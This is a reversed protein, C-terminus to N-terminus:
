NRISSNFDWLDARMLSKKESCSSCVTFSYLSHPIKKACYILMQQETNCFNLIDTKLDLNKNAPM